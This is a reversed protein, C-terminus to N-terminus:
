KHILQITAFTFILLFILIWFWFSPDGQMDIAIEDSPLTSKKEESDVDDEEQPKKSSPDKFLTKLETVDRAKVWSVFGEKWVWTDPTLWPNKRLEELSFPGEKKGNLLLFWCKDM